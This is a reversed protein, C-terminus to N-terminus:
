SSYVCKFFILVWSIPLQKTRGQLGWKFIIVLTSFTTTGCLLVDLVDLVIFKSRAHPPTTQFLSYLKSVKPGFYLKTQANTTQSARPFSLFDIWFTLKRPRLSVRKVRWASRGHPSLLNCSSGLSHRCLLSNPIWDPSFYSPSITYKSRLYPLTLLGGSAWSLNWGKGCHAQGIISSFAGWPPPSPNDFHPRTSNLM